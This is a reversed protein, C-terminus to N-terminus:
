DKREKEESGFGRFSFFLGMAAKYPTSKVQDTYLAPKCALPDGEFPKVYDFSCDAPKGRTGEKKGTKEPASNTPTISISGKFKVYALAALAAAGLLAISSTTASPM